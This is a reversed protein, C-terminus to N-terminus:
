SVTVTSHNGNNLNQGITSVGSDGPGFSGMDVVTTPTFTPQSDVITTSNM